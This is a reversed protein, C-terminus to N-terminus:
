QKNYKISLYTGIMGGVVAPIILWNNHTYSIITFAGSSTIFGSWLTAGIVKREAVAKVCETWAFAVSLDVLFILIFLWIM